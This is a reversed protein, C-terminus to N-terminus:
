TKLKLRMKLKCQKGILQHGLVTFCADVTIRVNVSCLEDSSCESARNILGVESGAHGGQVQLLLTAEVRM